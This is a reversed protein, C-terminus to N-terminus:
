FRREVAAVMRRFDSLAMVICQDREPSSIVIHDEGGTAADAFSISAKLDTDADLIQFVTKQQM